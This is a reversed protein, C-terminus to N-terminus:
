CLGETRVIARTNVWGRVSILLLFREQPTFAAKMHQNDLYESLRVRRSGEPGTWAQLPIAKGKGKGEHVPPAKAGSVWILVFCYARQSSVQM